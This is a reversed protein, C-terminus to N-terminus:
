APAPFSVWVDPGLRKSILQSPLEAILFGAKSLSSSSLEADSRYMHDSLTVLPEGLTITKRRSICTKSSATPRPAPWTEAIQCPAYAFRVTDKSVRWEGIDLALFM